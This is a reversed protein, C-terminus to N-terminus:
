LQVICIIVVLSVLGTGVMFSRGLGSTIMANNYNFANNYNIMDLLAQNRYTFVSQSFNLLVHMPMGILLKLLSFVFIGIM